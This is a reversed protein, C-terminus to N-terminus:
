IKEEIEIDSIHHVKKMFTKYRVFMQEAKADKWIFTNLNKESVYQKLDSYGYLAMLIQINLRRVNSVRLINALKMLSSAIANRVNHKKKRDAFVSGLNLYPGEQKLKRYIKTEESKRIEEQVNKARELKLKVSLIIGSLEKRKFASSRHTFCFDNKDLTQVKGDSMLVDASILMSSISCKFCGANNVVASAITGPLGVLGYFGAYGDKLCDTALKVVKVGCDCRAIDDNIEYSNLKLTSVVVLPHYTSHFFMNTTQGVIDFTINNESLFKCVDSLESITSPSIWYSCNGGTKIWTKKSLPVNEEFSVHHELLYQSINMEVSLM